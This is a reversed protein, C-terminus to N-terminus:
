HIALLWTAVAIMVSGAVIASWSQEMIGYASTCIGAALMVLFLIGIIVLM